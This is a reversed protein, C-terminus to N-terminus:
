CAHIVVQVIVFLVIVIGWAIAIGWAIIDLWPTPIKNNM